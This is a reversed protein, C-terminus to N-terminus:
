LWGLVRDYVEGVTASPGADAAVSQTRAALDAPTPELTAAFRALSTRADPSVVEALRPLDMRLIQTTRRAAGAPARSRLVDLGAAMQRVCDGLVTPDSERQTISAAERRIRWDVFVDPVVDIGRAATYMRAAVVQDEYLVDAPFRLNERQWLGIRSVKSWAVINGVVDPHEAVTVGDRAPSTSAAVWPQVAGRVWDGDVYRLRTYAGVVVESGTRELTRLAIGLANPRMEDDADLFAVYPTTVLDLGVNRAMGLGVSADHRIVTSRDDSAAFREMVAGTDDVSGDDILIARWRPDTQAQLSALAAGVLDGVDRGPVIVTVLPLM